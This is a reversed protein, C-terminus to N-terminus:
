TKIHEKLRTHEAITGTLIEGYMKMTDKHKNIKDDNSALKKISEM